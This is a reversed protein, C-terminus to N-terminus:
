TTVSLAVNPRRVGLHITPADPPGKTFGSLRNTGPGTTRLVTVSTDCHALPHMLAALYSTFAPHPAALLVAAGQQAGSLPNPGTSAVQPTISARVRASLTLPEDRSTHKGLYISHHTSGAM